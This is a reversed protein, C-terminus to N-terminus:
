TSCRPSRTSSRASARRARLRRVHFRGGAAHRDDGRRVGPRRLRARLDAHRVAAGPRLADYCGPPRRSTAAASASGKAWCSSRRTRRGDGRGASRADGAHLHDRAAARHCPAPTPQPSRPAEAYVHTTATAPDPWPSAEAFQQAEAVLAAVEADIADLAARDHRGNGNGNPSSGATWSRQRLRKIPCRTKWEEVEERTRYTFDGMGEAHARTRYTKCELLTPGGGARARRM